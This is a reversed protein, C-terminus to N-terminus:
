WSAVRCSESQDFSSWKKSFRVQKAFKDMLYPLLHSPEAMYTTVALGSRFGSGFLQKLEVPNMERILPFCEKGIPFQVKGEFLEYVTALSVGFKGSNPERILKGYFEITNAFIRKLLKPPTQEGPLYPYIFGASVDGTTEPTWRDSLVTVNAGRIETQLALGTCIGNIGGGVVAVKM